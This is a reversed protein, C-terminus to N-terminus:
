LDKILADYLQVLSGSWFAQSLTNSERIAQDSSQDYNYSLLLRSGFYAPLEVVHPDSTHVGTHGFSLNTQVWSLPNLVDATAPAFWANIQQKGAVFTSAFLLFMNRSPLYHLDPNARAVAGSIITTMNSFDLAALTSSALSMRYFGGVGNQHDVMLYLTGDDMFLLASNYLNYYVSNVNAVHSFIPSGGNLITWARKDPSSFLYIDGQTSRLSCVVLYYLGNSPHKTVYPYFYNHLDVEPALTWVQLNPDTTYGYKLDDSMHYWMDVQNGDMILSSEIAQDVVYDSLPDDIFTPTEPEGAGLPKPLFERM